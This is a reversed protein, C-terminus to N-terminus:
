DSLDSGVHEVETHIRGLGLRHWTPGEVIKAGVAVGVRRDLVGHRGLNNGAEGCTTVLGGHHSNLSRPARHRYDPNGGRATTM